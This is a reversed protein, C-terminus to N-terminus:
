VSDHCLRVQRVHENREYRIQAIDHDEGARQYYDIPHFQLEIPDIGLRFCAEVSRPSTPILAYEPANPDTSM